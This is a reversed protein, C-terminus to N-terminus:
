CRIAPLGLNFLDASKESYGKCSCIFFLHIQIPLATTPLITPGHGSWKKNKAWGSKKQGFISKPNSSKKKLKWQVKKICSWHKIILQYSFHAYTLIEDTGPHSFCHFVSVQTFAQLSGQRSFVWKMTESMTRNLGAQGAVSVLQFILNENMALRFIISELLPIVFNSILSRRYSTTRFCIKQM